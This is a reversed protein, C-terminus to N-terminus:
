RVAPANDASRTEAIDYGNGLLHTAFRPRFTHCGVKKNIESALAAERIAKKLSSESNYITVRNPLTIISYKIPEKPNATTLALNQ